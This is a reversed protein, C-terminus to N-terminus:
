RVFFKPQALSTCGLAEDCTSNTQCLVVPAWRALAEASASHVSHMLTGSNTGEGLQNGQMMQLIPKYVLSLTFNQQEEHYKCQIARISSAGVVDIDEIIGEVTVESADPAHLIELITKNFQYLFGQIAFDATRTM